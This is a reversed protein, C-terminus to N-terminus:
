NLVGRERARRTVFFTNLIAYTKETKKNRYISKACYAPSCSIFVGDLFWRAAFIRVRRFRESQIRQASRLVRSICVRVRPVPYMAIAVAAAVATYRGCRFPVPPCKNSRTKEDIILTSQKQLIVGLSHCSGCGHFSPLLSSSVLSLTALRIQNLQPVM